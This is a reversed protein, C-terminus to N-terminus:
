SVCLSGAHFGIFSGRKTHPGASCHATERLWSNMRLTRISKVYDDLADVSYGVKYSDTM